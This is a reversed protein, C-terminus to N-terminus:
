SSVETAQRWRRRLLYCAGVSVLVLLVLGAVSVGAVLGPSLYQSWGYGQVEVSERASLSLYAWGPGSVRVGCSYSGGDSINAKDIHFDQRDGRLWVDGRSWIYVAGPGLAGAQCRLTFGDGAKIAAKGGPLLIKVSPVNPSVPGPPQPQDSGCGDWYGDVQCRLAVGLPLRSPSIPLETMQKGAPTQGPSWQAGDADYWFPRHPCLDPVSCILTPGPDMRRGLRPQCPSASVKLQEPKSTWLKKEGDRVTEFRFRYTGRDSLRLQALRLSCSNQLDGLYRVHGQFAPDICDNDSHYVTQDGDLIWNVATVNEGAPYSFSCRITVCSGVWGALPGGFFTVSREQAYAGSLLCLAPFLVLAM